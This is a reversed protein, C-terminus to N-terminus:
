LFSKGGRWGKLGDRPESLADRSIKHYYSGDFHFGCYYLHPIEKEKIKRAKKIGKNNAWRLLPWLKNTLRYIYFIIIINKHLLIRFRLRPKWLVIQQQDIMGFEHVLLTPVATLLVHDARQEAVQVQVAVSEQLLFFQFLYVMNYYIIINSQWMNRWFLQEFAKEAM